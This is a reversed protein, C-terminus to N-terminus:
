KVTQICSVLGSSANRTLNEHIVVNRNLGNHAQDAYRNANMSELSCFARLSFLRDHHPDYKCQHDDDKACHKSTSQSTGVSLIIVFLAQCRKSTGISFAYGVLFGVM